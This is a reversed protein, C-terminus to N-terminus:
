TSTPTKDLFLSLSWIEFGLERYFNFTRQWDKNASYTTFRHIGRTEGSQLIATVLVSGVGQGRSDPTVYLDHLVLYNEGRPFICLHESSVEAIAFGVIRGDKGTALIFHPGLRCLLDDATDAVLGHTSAESVWDRYLAAVKDLDHTTANRLMYKEPVEKM